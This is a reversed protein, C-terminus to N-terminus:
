SLSWENLLISKLDPIHDEPLTISVTMGDSTDNRMPFVLVVGEEGVNDIACNVYVPTNGRIDLEYLPADHLDVFTLNAGYMLFDSLGSDSEMAEEINRRVDLGQNMILLGLEMLSSKNVSSNTKVVKVSQAKNTIVGEFSSESDRKCITVINVESTKVKSVCQWVITCIAEFPPLQLHDRGGCIKSQLHTLQPYSIYFSYTRLKMNNPITWHDGVPGVRKASLLDKTLSKPNHDEKVSQAMLLPKAPHHGRIVQGWINMYTSASFVDGLVHAWSLGVSMGGCKFKTLQLLVLPSFFLDPGLVQNTVLLKQRADDRSELWEDLSMDCRAEIIRVGCDNCKIYPRGSESRRLRGCPVYAHNNWYFMPEKIKMISLGEFAQSRFYYITRIYHLKMALDMGTLEQAAGQGSIHGPGVSSIKIDYVLKEDNSLVM